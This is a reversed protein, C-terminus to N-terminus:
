EFFIPMYDSCVAGVDSFDKITTREPLVCVSKREATTGPYCWIWQKSTLVAIDTDHIFFNAQLNQCAIAATINKCHVWVNSSELLSIDNLLTSPKDHGLYFKEDIKWIDIEVEWGQTIKEKLLMENNELLPNDVPGNSLGRHLIWRPHSNWSMIVTRKNQLWTGFGFEWVKPILSLLSLDSYKEVLKDMLLYDEESPEKTFRFLTSHYIDQPHPEVIDNISRRIENRISNIDTKSYGCLFLGYRSKSIGKFDLSIHPSKKLIQKLIKGKELIENSVIPNVPFTNLQFLTWHLKATTGSIDFILGKDALPQLDSILNKFFNTITWDGFSWIATTYEPPELLLAQQAVPKSKLNIAKYINEM